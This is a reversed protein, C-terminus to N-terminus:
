LSRGFQLVVRAVADPHDYQVAHGWRPIVAPPPAGALRAVTEAWPQPAIRDRGGRVVRVPVSLRPLLDELRHALMQRMEEALVRLGSRKYGLAGWLSFTPREFPATGLGRALVQAVTRAEPDSTPGILVLGAVREPRRVAVEAAIQCGLSHGVLVAPSLEWADMWADLAGALEPITLPRVDHDSPGHGPLDPAYVSGQESLRGALPVLYDSGVGFGHVLVAPPLSDPGDNRVRAHLRLPRTLGPITTWGRRLRAECARFDALERRATRLVQLAGAALVARGVLRATRSM